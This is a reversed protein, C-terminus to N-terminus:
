CSTPRKPRIQRTYGDRANRGLFTTRNEGKDTSTGWHTGVYLRGTRVRSEMRDSGLIRGTDETGQCTGPGSTEKLYIYPLQTYIPPIYFIYLINM